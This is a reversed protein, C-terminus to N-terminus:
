VNKLEEVLKKEFIARQVQRFKRTEYYCKYLYPCLSLFCGEAEEYLVRGDNAVAEKLLGSATQLNILDLQSKRHLIILDGMLDFLEQSNLQKKSIFAIDIDSRSPDYDVQRAYSGYYVILRLGYKKALQQLKEDDIQILM